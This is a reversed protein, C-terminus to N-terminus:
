PTGRRTLDAVEEAALALDDVCDLCFGWWSHDVSDENVCAFAILPSGVKGCVSCHQGRERRVFTGLLRPEFKSKEPARWRAVWPRVTRVSVLDARASM